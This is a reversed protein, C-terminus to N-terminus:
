FAQLSELKEIGYTNMKCTYIEATYHHHAPQWHRKSHYDKVKMMSTWFSVIEREPYSLIKM